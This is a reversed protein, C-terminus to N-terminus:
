PKKKADPEKPSTITLNKTIRADPAIEFEEVISVTEKLAEIDDGADEAVDVAIIRYKGPRVARFSYKGDAAAFKKFRRDFRANLLKLDDILMVIALTASPPDGNKDRVV